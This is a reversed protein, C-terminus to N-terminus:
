HNFKKKKIIFICKLSETIDVALNFFFVESPSFVQVIKIHNALMKLSIIFNLCLAVRNEM